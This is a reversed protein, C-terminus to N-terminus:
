LKTHPLTAAHRMWESIQDANFDGVRIDHYRVNGVKSAGAPVPKLLVGQFFTIRVFNTYCHMSSFWKGEEVGYMPTNYKVAKRVGLVVSVIAADLRRCIDQKWGPIADIYAAVPEIGVGKAIQPNDGSLVALKDTMLRSEQNLLPALRQDFDGPVGVIGCNNLRDASASDILGFLVPSKFREVELAAFEARGGLM